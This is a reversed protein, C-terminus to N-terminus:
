VKQLPLTQINELHLVYGPRQIDLAQLNSLNVLDKDVRERAFVREINRSGGGLSDETQCLLDARATLLHAVLDVNGQAAALHLPAIRSPRSCVNVKANQPTQDCGLFIVMGLFTRGM